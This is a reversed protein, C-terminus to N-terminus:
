DEPTWTLAILYQNHIETERDVDLGLVLGLSLEDSLEYAVSSVAEVAQTDFDLEPLYRVTVGVDLDYVVWHGSVFALWGFSTEDTAKKGIEELTDANESFNGFGGSVRGGAVEYIGPRAFYGLRLRDFNHLKNGNLSLLHRLM